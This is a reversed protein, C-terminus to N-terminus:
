KFIPGCLVLLSFFREITWDPCLSSKGCLVGFHPKAKEAHIFIFKKLCERLKTKFIKCAGRLISPPNCIKHKEYGIFFLLILKRTKKESVLYMPISFYHYTKSVTHPRIGFAM